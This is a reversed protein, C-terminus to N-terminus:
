EDPTYRDYHAQVASSMDRWLTAPGTKHRNCRLKPDHVKKGDGVEVYRAIEECGNRDCLPATM